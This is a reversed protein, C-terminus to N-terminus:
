SEGKLMGCAVRAADDDMNCTLKYFRIKKIFLDIIDLQLNLLAEEEPILLQGFLEPLVAEPSAKCISNKEGRNLFCVAKLEVSDNCGWNEKGCWPTGYARFIGTEPEYAVLPKDGNIIRMQYGYIKNWLAIHTSKGTGSKAAFAYGENGYSIVAAHMIMTQYNLMEIAIKRYICISECYPESFQESARNREQVISDYPISVTFDFPINDPVMYERCLNKVFLFRNDIRIIRGALKIQFM